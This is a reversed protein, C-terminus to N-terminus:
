LAAWAVRPVALPDCGIACAVSATGALVTVSTVPVTLARAAWATGATMLVTVPLV